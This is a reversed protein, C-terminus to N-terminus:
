HRGDRSPFEPITKRLWADFERGRPTWCIWIVGDEQWLGFGGCSDLACYSVALIGVFRHEGIHRQFAFRDDRNFKRRYKFAPPQESSLEFCHVNLCADLLAPAADLLRDRVATSDTGDDIPAVASLRMGASAVGPYNRDIAM